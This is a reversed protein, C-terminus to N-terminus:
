ILVHKQEQPPMFDDAIYLCILNNPRVDNLDEISDDKPANRPLTSLRGSHSHNQQINGFPLSNWGDISDRHFTRFKPQKFTLTEPRRPPEATSRKGKAWATIESNRSWTECQAGQMSGAGGEAQKEAQWDREHIFLIKFLFLDTDRPGCM